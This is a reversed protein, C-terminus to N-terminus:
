PVVCSPIADAPLESAVCMVLHNTNRPTGGREVEFAGFRAQYIWYSEVACDTCRTSTLFWNYLFVDPRYYRGGGGPGQDGACSECTAGTGCSM